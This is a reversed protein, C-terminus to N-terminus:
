KKRNKWNKLEIKIYKECYSALIKRKLTIKGSEGLIFKETM